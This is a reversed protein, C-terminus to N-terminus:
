KNKKYLMIATALSILASILNVIATLIDLAKEEKRNIGKRYNYLLM